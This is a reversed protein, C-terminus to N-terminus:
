SLLALCIEFPQGLGLLLQSDAQTLEFGSGGLFEPSGFALVPSQQTSHLGTIKSIKQELKPYKRKPSM